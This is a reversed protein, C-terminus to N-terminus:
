LKTLGDPLQPGAVGRHEAEALCRERPDPQCNIYTLINGSTKLVVM